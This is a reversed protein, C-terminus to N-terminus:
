GTPFEVPEFTVPLAPRLGARMSQSLLGAVKDTVTAPPIYALLLDPTYPKWVLSGTELGRAQELAVWLRSRENGLTAAEEEGLLFALYHSGDEAPYHDVAAISMHLTENVSPVRRRLDAHTTERTLWAPEILGQNRLLQKSKIVELSLSRRGTAAPVYVEMAPPRHKWSALSGCLKQLKPSSARRFFALDADPAKRDEYEVNWPSEM